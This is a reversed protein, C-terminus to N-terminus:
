ISPQTVYGRQRKYFCVNAKLTDLVANYFEGMSHRGLESVKFIQANGVCSRKATSFDVKALFGVRHADPM